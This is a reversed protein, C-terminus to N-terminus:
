LRGGKMNEKILIVTGDAAVKYSFGVSTMALEESVKRLEEKVLKVESKRLKM